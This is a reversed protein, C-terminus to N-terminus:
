KVNKHSCCNVSSPHLNKLGNFLTPCCLLFGGPAVRATKVNLFYGAFRYAPNQEPGQPGEIVM